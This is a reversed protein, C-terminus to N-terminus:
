PPHPIHAQSRQWIIQRFTNSWQKHGGNRFSLCDTSVKPMDIVNKVTLMLTLQIKQKSYVIHLERQNMNLTVPTGRHEAEVRLKRM